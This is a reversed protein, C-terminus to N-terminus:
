AEFRRQVVIIGASIYILGFVAIIAAPLLASSAPLHRIMLDNYARMTWTTPLALAVQRMWVPEYDLPWWCGGVAAMTMIVIAGVPLVADRTRAVGAVVLGFAAGAFAIAASPMLLAAPSEGLSIGFLVWGAAFLIIMQVFGAIFRALLKGTLTAAFPASASRLRQLTGWDREDILSLSVGMLMGILLFTVAFGPVQLDFVNFGGMHGVANGNLDVETFGLTGPVTISGSLAASDFKPIPPPNPLAPLEPLEIQIEPIRVASKIRQKLVSADAGEDQKNALAKIAAPPEPFAPPAPIDSARSGASEKLNAFWDQFANEARQLQTLYVRFEELRARQESAQRDVADFIQRLADDLAARTQAKSKEIASNISDRIQRETQARTRAAASTISAADARMKEASLSASEIESQLHQQQQAIRNRAQEAAAATIARCMEGISLEIRITQLYKVADTYLILRPQRGKALERTAGAPIIIAVAAARRRRVMESAQKRSELVVSTITPQRSLAEKVARGVADHDEDVIAVRYEGRKNSSKGGYVNALSFGAAAIVSIPAVLLMFLGVRDRMLLRFEKEITLLIARLM